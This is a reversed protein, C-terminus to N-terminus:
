VGRREEEREMWKRRCEPTTQPLLNDQLFETKCKYQVNEGDMWIVRSGCFPCEKKWDAEM